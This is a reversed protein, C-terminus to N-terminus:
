RWRAPKIDGRSSASKVFGQLCGKLVVGDSFYPKVAVFCTESDGNKVGLTMEVGRRCLDDSQRSEASGVAHLEDEESRRVFLILCTVGPVAKQNVDIWALRLADM